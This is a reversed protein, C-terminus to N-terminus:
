AIVPPDDLADGFVITIPLGSPAAIGEHTEQAVSESSQGVGLDVTEGGRSGIDDFLLDFDLLNGATVSGPEGVEFGGSLILDELDAYINEVPEGSAAAFTAGDAIAALADALMDDSLESILDGTTLLEGLEFLTKDNDAM